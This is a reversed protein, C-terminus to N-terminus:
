VRSNRGAWPLACRRRAPAPRARDPRNRDPAAPARARGRRGRAPAARDARICRPPRPPCRSAWDAGRCGTSPYRRWARCERRELRLQALEDFPYRAVSQARAAHDQAHRQPHSLLEPRFAHPDAHADGARRRLAHGGRAGANQREKGVAEGAGLAIRRAFRADRGAHEVPQDVFARQLGDRQRRLRGCPRGVRTVGNGIERGGLGRRARRQAVAHAGAAVGDGQEVADGARALGLDIELRHGFRYRAAALAQDQHRFDREGRLRQITERRSEPHARRLPMGLQARADAGAGPMRHGGALDADDDAGARRQEQGVGIEAQDDDIFFMVRDVLLFVAHVIVGAVHRHHAAVDGPKRHHQRRRRRRDLGLHIRPAPAIAAQLQRLPEAALVHGADLRDIEGALARRAAAEDRRSQGPRDLDRQFAPLLRQQEEVAAAIRREGQAAGASKAEGAGIAICPQDIVTELALQHAMVAAEERRPRRRARFALSGIREDGATGTDLAKLLLRGRKKGPARIM